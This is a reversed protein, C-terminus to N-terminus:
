AKSLDPDSIISMPLLLRLFLVLCLPTSTETNAIMPYLPELTEPKRGNTTHMTSAILTNRPELNIFGYTFTSDSYMYRFCGYAAGIPLSKFYRQKLEILSTRLQMCETTIYAKNYQQQLKQENYKLEKDSAELGQPSLSPSAVQRFSKRAGFLSLDNRLDDSTCLTVDLRQLFNLQM